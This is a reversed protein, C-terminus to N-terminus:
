KQERCDTCFTAMLTMAENLMEQSGDIAAFAEVLKILQPDPATAFWDKRVDIIAADLGYDMAKKLYARVVEQRRGPLNRLCNSIGLSFHVGEFEPSNKLAKITEFAAFTRGKENPAFPMDIALPFAGTDFYIDQPTFGYTKSKELIETAQKTLDAIPEINDSAMLLGIFSFPTAKTLPMIIDANYPKISNILPKNKGGAESFAELGAILIDDNSSDICVVSNGGLEVVMSVFKKMMDIAIDVGAECFKDVNVEIFDADAAAQSTIIDTIYQWSAEDNCNYAKDMAEGCKSISAHLSEGIMILKKTKTTDLILNGTNFKTNAPNDEFHPM